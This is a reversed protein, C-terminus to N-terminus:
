EGKELVYCCVKEEDLDDEEQLPPSEPVFLQGPCFLCEHTNKKAKEEEHFRCCYRTGQGVGEEVVESEQTCVCSEEDVESKQYRRSQRYDQFTQAEEQGLGELGWFGKGCNKCRFRQIRKSDSPRFYHGNKIVDKSINCKPCM